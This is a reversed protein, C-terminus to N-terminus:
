GLEDRDHRAVCPDSVVSPGEAVRDFLGRNPAEHRQSHARRLGSRASSRSMRGTTKPSTRLRVSGHRVCGHRTCLRPTNDAMARQGM